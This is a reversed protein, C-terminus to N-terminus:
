HKLLDTVVKVAENADYAWGDSRVHTAFEKSTAGGGILSKIQPKMDAEKMMREIEKMAALTPTM